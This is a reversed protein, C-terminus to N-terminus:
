IKNLRELEAKAEDVGIYIPNNELAKELELKAEENRGKLIYVMALHYHMEPVVKGSQIVSELATLADDIQGNKFSVWGYTDQFAPYKSDKIKEILTFAREIGKKDSGEVLLASLNNIALQNEPFKLLLKEYADIAKDKDGALTNLVGLQMMFIGSEPIEQLGQQYVTIAKDIQKQILYVSSLNKYGLEVKPKLEVVQKFLREADDFQKLGRHLEARMTLLAANDKNEAVVKDLLKGAEKQQNSALYSNVLGALVDPATPKLALVTRFEDIAQQYKKQALYLQALKYHPLEKTESSELFAKAITKPRIGNSHDVM